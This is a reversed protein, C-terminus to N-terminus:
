HPHALSLSATLLAAEHLVCFLQTRCDSTGACVLLRRRKMIYKRSGRASRRVHMCVCAVCLVSCLRLWDTVVSRQAGTSHQKSFVLTVRAGRAVSACQCRATASLAGARALPAKELPSWRAARKARMCCECPMRETTSLCDILPVSESQARAILGHTLLRSTKCHVLPHFIVRFTRKERGRQQQWRTITAVLARRVGPLHWDPAQLESVYPACRATATHLVAALLSLAARPLLHRCNCVTTHSHM